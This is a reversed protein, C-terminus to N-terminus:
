DLGYFLYEFLQMLHLNVYNKVWGEGCQSRSLQLFPRLYFPSTRADLLQTETNARENERSCEDFASTFGQAPFWSESEYM